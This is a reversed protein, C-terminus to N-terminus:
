DVGEQLENIANKVIEIEETSLKNKIADRAVRQVEVVINQLDSYVEPSGYDSNVKQLVNQIANKLDYGLYKVFIDNLKSIKAESLNYDSNQYIMNVWLAMLKIQAKYRRPTTGERLLNATITKTAEGKTIYENLRIIGRQVGQENKIQKRIQSLDQEARQRAKGYLKRAGTRNLRSKLEERKITNRVANVSDTVTKLEQKARNIEQNLVTKELGVDKGSEARRQLYDLRNRASKKIKNLEIRVMDYNGRELSNILKETDRQLNVVDSKIKIAM